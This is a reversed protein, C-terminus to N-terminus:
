QQCPLTRMVQSIYKYAIIGHKYQIEHKKNQNLRWRNSIYVTGGEEGRRRWAWTRASGLRHSLFIIVSYSTLVLILYSFPFGVGRAKDFHNTEYLADTLTSM